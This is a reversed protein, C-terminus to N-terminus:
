KLLHNRQYWTGVTMAGAVPEKDQARPHPVPIIGLLFYM